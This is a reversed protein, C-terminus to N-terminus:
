QVVTALGDPFREHGYWRNAIVNLHVAGAASRDALFYTITQPDSQCGLRVLQWSVHHHQDVL